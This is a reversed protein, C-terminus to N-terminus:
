KPDSTLQLLSMLSSIWFPMKAAFLHKWPKFFCILDWRVEFLVLINTYLTSILGTSVYAESVHVKDLVFSRLALDKQFFPAEIYKQLSVLSHSM